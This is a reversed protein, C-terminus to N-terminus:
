RPTTRIAATRTPPPPNGNVTPDVILRKPGAALDDQGDLIGGPM